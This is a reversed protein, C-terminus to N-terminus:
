TAWGEWVSHHAPHDESAKLIKNMAKRMDKMAQLDAQMDVSMPKLFGPSLTINQHLEPYHHRVVPGPYAALREKIATATLNRM